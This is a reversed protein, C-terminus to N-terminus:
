EASAVFLDVSLLGAGNHYLRTCAANPQANPLQGLDVVSAFEDTQYRLFGAREQTGQDDWFFLTRGDASLGTPRRRETGSARLEVSVWPSGVQWPDGVFIRRTQRVTDVVGSGYESYLFTKDDPALLPDAFSNGAPMSAEAYNDFASFPNIAALDFAAARSARTYGVFGRRADSVLVLELGDPSLAARDLAFSGSLQRPADFASAISARDAYQITVAGNTSTAWAVSLEDSSLSGFRDDAQTSIPLASGDVWQATTGCLTLPGAGGSAAGGASNGAAGGNGPM